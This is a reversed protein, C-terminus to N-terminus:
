VDDDSTDDSQDCDSQRDWDKFKSGKMYDDRLITWSPQQDDSKSKQVQKRKQRTQTEARGKLMDIFSGKDMSSMVPSSLCM